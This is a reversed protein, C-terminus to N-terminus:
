DNSEGHTLLEEILQKNIKNVDFKEVALRRSEEAMMNVENPHKIMWIMKKALQVENKKEVIFGNVNNIVTEKCGPTNCTIVPRGIALAQLTSRPVGEPYYSPYIFYRSKAIYHSVQQTEGHYTVIDEKVAKQLIDNLGSKEVTNDIPGVINFTADPYNNKVIRAANIYEELGKSKTIRSLFLFSDDSVIETKPFKELNVGSGHTTFTKFEGKVLRNDKFLQLDDNNQFCISDALTYALKLMPFSMFRVLGWKIGKLVFLNGRGNIVCMVNKVGALKAGLTMSIHNKVGYIIVSNINYEKLNNCINILSIIEKIPNINNRNADISIVKIDNLKYYDNVEGDNVLGVYVNGVTSKLSEILEPRPHTISTKSNSMIAVRSM